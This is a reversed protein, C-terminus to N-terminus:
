KREGDRAAQQPDDTAQMRDYAEVWTKIDTYKGRLYRYGAYGAVGVVAANIAVSVLATVATVTIFM